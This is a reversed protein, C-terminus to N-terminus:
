LGRQEGFADVIINSFFVGNAYDIYEHIFQVKRTKSEFGKGFCGASGRVRRASSIM